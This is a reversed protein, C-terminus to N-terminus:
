SLPRTSATTATMTMKRVNYKANCARVTRPYGLDHCPQSAHPASDDDSGREGQRQHPCRQGDRKDGRGAGPGVPALQRLPQLRRGQGGDIQEVEVLRLLRPQASVDRAPVRARHRREVVVGGVYLGHLVLDHPQRMAVRRYRALEVHGPHFVLGPQGVDGARLQRGHAQWVGPGGLRHLGVDAMDPRVHQGDPRRPPSQLIQDGARLLRDRVPEFPECSVSSAASMAM